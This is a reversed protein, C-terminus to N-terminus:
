EIGAACGGAYFLAKLEMQKDTRARFPFHCSDVGFETFRCGMAPGRRASVRPTLLDLDSKKKVTQM